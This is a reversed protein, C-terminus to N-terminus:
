TYDEMIKNFEDDGSLENYTEWDYIIEEVDEEQINFEPENILWHLFRRLEEQDIKTGAM